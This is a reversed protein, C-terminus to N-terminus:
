KVFGKGIWKLSTWRQVFIIGRINEDLVFAFWMGVLGFGFVIGFL